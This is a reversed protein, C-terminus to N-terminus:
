PTNAPTVAVSGDWIRVRRIVDGLEIQDVVDMGSIVRGFVTYKADLHPQPAHTIFFQSGGTDAWDLAMGVTGRLYPRENLEDRISYGPGGEGDARPDGAQVVFDPVVRHITIGDFFGSRALAVFNEVTQPADLMALELQITGRDMEIYAQTSYPPSILRPAEFLEPHAAPAPRIRLAADSAPDFQKLLQVARVRVAWDKDALATTLIPTAESAGYAAVAVIAAARAVYTTDAEGRRYAETLPAVGNAPKLEGLATAAAARIVPDAVTLREIMIRPADAPHLKAIAALVPPIVRPEPDDLMARLRPLGAEPALTALISALAARVSWQPDTDMGSLMFVFGEADLTALSRLAAARIPPSPDALLAILTDSVGEGGVNGIATVAELRLHPEAKPAQLIKLLAATARADKLRGLGRVAEIAVATDAGNVLPLLATAASPDKMAGLGKAAFAATYPQADKLLTLLVPLARPDELRQFAYAVPWWHVRPQGSQDLTAAALADFAKLRVLAYLALRFAAAASDRPVDTLDSPLETLAGSAAIDSAMRAIPPAAASDGILGLAEAASGKLLMSEDALKAILPERASPDGILGLAFAAMQKVEPDADDMLRVLPQVGEVLGVRGVALAARRRIRAESDTLLRLLDPPPPPAAVVPAPASKGRAPVSPPPPPPAPPAPDRLVRTDELRLIWSSKQEFSPVFPKPPTIPPASACAASLTLALAITSRTV